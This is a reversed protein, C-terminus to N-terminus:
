EEGASLVRAEWALLSALLRGAGAYFSHGAARETDAAFEGAWALLHDRLFAVRVAEREAARGGAEPGCLEEVRCLMAMFALEVAIHDGCEGAADFDLGAGRYARLVEAALVGNLPGFGSEERRLRYASEYPPVAPLGPGCYLRSYECALRVADVVPEALGSPFPGVEQEMESAAQHLDEQLSGDLIAELLGAEPPSFCCSLGIYLRALDGSRNGDPGGSCGSMEGREPLQTWGNM